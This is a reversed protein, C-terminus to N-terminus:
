PLARFPCFLTEFHTVSAGLWTILTYNSICGNSGGNQKRALGVYVNPSVVTRGQYRVTYMYQVYSYMYVTTVHVQISYLYVHICVQVHIYTLCIKNYM